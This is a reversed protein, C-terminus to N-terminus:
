IRGGKWEVAILRARELKAVFDEDYKVGGKERKEANIGELAYDLLWDLDKVQPAGFDFSVPPDHPSDPSLQFPEIGHARLQARHWNHARCVRLYAEDTAM